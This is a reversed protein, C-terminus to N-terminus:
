DEDRYTESLKRLENSCVTMLHNITDIRESKLDNEMVSTAPVWEIYRRYGILCEQISCLDVTNMSM